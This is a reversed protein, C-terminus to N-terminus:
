FHRFLYQLEIYNIYHLTCEELAQINEYSVTQKFFSEVSIIIDGEKMFWSCVEKDNKDHFCRLLGKEIFSINTCVAGQKLLYAKRPLEKIKLIGQLYEIVGPSLPHITSLYLLLKEM